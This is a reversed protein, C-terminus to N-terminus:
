SSAARLRRAFVIVVVLLATLALMGPLGVDDAFGADPLVLTPTPTVTLVAGAAQTQAQAAATLLAQVTSTAPNQTAGGPLLIQTATAQDAAVVSTSTGTAVPTQTPPLTATFTATFLAAEQTQNAAMAIETNQGNIAVRTLETDGASTPRRLIFVAALCILSVLMFGGLGGAVMLFTRNGSEEPPPSDDPVNFEDLM